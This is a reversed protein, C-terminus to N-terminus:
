WDHAASLSAEGAEEGGEGRRACGLRDAGADDGDDALYEVLNSETTDYQLREAAADKHDAPLAVVKGAAARLAADGGETHHGRM